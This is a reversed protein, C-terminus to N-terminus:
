NNNISLYLKKKKAILEGKVKEMTEFWGQEEALAKEQPNSLIYERKTQIASLHSEIQGIQKLVEQKKEDDSQKQYVEITPSKISKRSQQANIECVVFLLLATLLTNRKKM